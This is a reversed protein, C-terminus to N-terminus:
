RLRTVGPARIPAIAPRALLRAIAKRATSTTVTSKTIPRAKTIRTAGECVGPAGPPTAATRGDVATGPVSGRRPATLTAATATGVDISRAAKWAVASIAIPREGASRCAPPRGVKVGVGTVAGGGFGPTEAFDPTASTAFCTAVGCAVSVIWNGAVGVRGGVRVGVTVGVSVGDAVGVGVGVGVGSGEGQVAGIRTGLSCGPYPYRTITM